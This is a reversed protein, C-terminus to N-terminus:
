RRAVVRRLPLPLSRGPGSSGLTHKATAIRDSNTDPLYLSDILLTASEDTDIPFAFTRRESSLVRFGHRALVAAVGDCADPNPWPQGAVGLARLVRAWGLWGRPSFGLGAPVLAALVGGPRLVRAIEALVDTLPTVVQLAMAACVADAAGDGLPLANARAQVLPQRSAAAAETLEGASVDMGVWRQGALHERTPASGCGVDVIWGTTDQLPEALWGYPSGDVRSLVRETIGPKEDHFATIYRQWGEDTM